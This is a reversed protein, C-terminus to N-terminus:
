LACSTKLKTGNIGNVRVGSLVIQDQLKGMPRGNSILPLIRHSVYTIILAPILIHTMSFGPVDCTLMWHQMIHHMREIFGNSVLTQKQIIGASITTILDQLVRTLRFVIMDVLTVELVVGCFTLQGFLTQYLRNRSLYCLM